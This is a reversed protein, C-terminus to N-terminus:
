GTIRQDKSGAGELQKVSKLGRKKFLLDIAEILLPHIKTRETFALERLQEYVAPELYLSM